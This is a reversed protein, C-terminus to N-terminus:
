YVHGLDFPAVACLEKCHRCLHHPRVRTSAARARPECFRPPMASLTFMSSVATKDGAGSRGIRAKSSARVANERSAGRWALTTSNRYKPPRVRYGPIIFLAFFLSPKNCGDSKRRLHGPSILAPDPVPVLFSVYHERRWLQCSDNRAAGKVFGAPVAPAASLRTRRGSRLISRVM